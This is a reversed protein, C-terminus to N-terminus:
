QTQGSRTANEPLDQSLSEPILAGVELEAEHEVGCESPYAVIGSYISVAGGYFLKALANSLGENLKACFGSNHYQM